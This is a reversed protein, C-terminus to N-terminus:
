ENHQLNRYWLISREGMAPGFTTDCQKKTLAGARILATLVARWARNHGPAVERHAIGMGDLTVSSYEPLPECYFGTIYEQRLEGYEDRKPYLVAIANAAGGKQFHIKRNLVHIRRVLEHWDLWYGAEQAMKQDSLLAQDPVHRSSAQRLTDEKAKAVAEAPSIALLDAPMIIAASKNEPM